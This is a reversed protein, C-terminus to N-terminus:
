AFRQCARGRAPARDAVAPRDPVRGAALWRKAAAPPRSLDARDPQGAARRAPGVGARLGGACGAAPRPDRPPSGAPPGHAMIRRSLDPLLENALDTAPGPSAVLGIVVDVSEVLGGGTGHGPMDAPSM